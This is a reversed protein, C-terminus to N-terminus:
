RADSAVLDVLGLNYLQRFCVQFEAKLLFTVQNSRNLDTASKGQGASKIRGILSRRVEKPQVM